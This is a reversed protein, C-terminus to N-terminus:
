STTEPPLKDPPVIEIDSVEVLQMGDTYHPAPPTLEQEPAYVSEETITNILSYVIEVSGEHPQQHGQPLWCNFIEWEQYIYRAWTITLSTTGKTAKKDASPPTTKTELQGWNSAVTRLPRKSAFICTATEEEPEPEPTAEVEEAAPPTPKPAALRKAKGVTKAEPLENAGMSTKIEDEYRELLEGFKEMLQERTTGSGLKPKDGGIMVVTTQPPQVPQPPPPPMYPYYPPPPPPAPKPQLSRLLLYLGYGGLILLIITLPIMIFPMTYDPEWDITITEPGDMLTTGSSNVANLKGGFVGLIGPLRVQPNTMSWEAQSGAKYWDSGEADGYPSTLTLRYYTDYYAICTGAANVTLSLEKGSVTEGTPLKWYAFRYQTNPVSPDNVEDPASVRLTYNEKYWGSGPIQGAKSPEPKLEISYEAYYPFTADPSVESVTIRDVEAKFRVSSDTPHQVIEDVSVSRSVGVDLSLKTSEGGRLTAMPSGSVYVKTEGVKLGNGITIIAEYGGKEVIISFGQQGTIPTASSDTVTIIFSYSGATGQAPVGSIYGNSAQLALGIPLSGSTMSWTYPTTGGSVTIKDSYSEGEKAAMLSTTLFKLPPQNVTLIFPQTATAAASDTVQATFNFTGSITPTGSIIGTAAFNLGTPLSGTIISWTYPPTGGAAQLATYYSSGTQGQPLVPATTIVPQALVPSVLLFTFSLLVLLCVLTLCFGQGIGRKLFTGKSLRISKM